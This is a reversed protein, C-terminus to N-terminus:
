DSANILLNRRAVMFLKPAHGGPSGRLGISGGPGSGRERWERRAHM